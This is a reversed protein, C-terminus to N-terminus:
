AGIRIGRFFKKFTTIPLNPVHHSGWPNQLSITRANIDVREPAYAHNGYVNLANAEKTMAEDSSMDRSDVTVPKKQELAAGIELLINDEAMKDTSKYGEAKGTLLETAGNFNFGTAIQGGEIANYSGKHQALTKELLSPWFEKKDDDKDMSQAYLLSDGGNSPLRADVKKVV